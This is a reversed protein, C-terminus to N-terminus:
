ANAGIIKKLSSAIRAVQEENNDMGLTIRITGKAYDEPVEIARIVHSLVTEKSNCASGTAIAIGMLDLRHLLMEGDLGRFSISLSGPIHSEAGNVIFDLGNLVNLLHTRLLELRECDQQMTLVHEQLAAAMGVIGAVNETGSRMGNEQGGGHLLPEINSGERIYLFGVGKPGNFKHASASLMDVQLSDVNIPIHGVAQM